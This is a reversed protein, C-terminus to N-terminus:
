NPRAPRPQVPPAALILSSGKWDSDKLVPTQSQGFQKISDAEVGSKTYEFARKLDPYKRLGAILNHTFIGNQYESSDYSVQNASSSAILLQGSGQMVMEVNMKPMIFVSKSGTEAAGAHCADLVILVRDTNLRGKITSALDQMEIGTAFLNAPNTDYALVFNKHAADQDASSGHGAFFVLVLDGPKVNKPLWTSGLETMIGERTAHENILLKVHDAAFHEEKVLFHAFDAADKDPFRLNITPDKFKSIGVVLAWKDMIPTKQLDGTTTQPPTSLLTSLSTSTPTATSTSTSTSTATSIATSTSDPLTTTSSPTSRNLDPTLNPTPYSATKSQSDIDNHALVLDVTFPKSIDSSVITVPSKAKLQSKSTHQLDLPVYIQYHKAMVTQQGKPRIIVQRSYQSLDPGLADKSLTLQLTELGPHEDFELSGNKPLLYEVGKRVHNNGAELENPFLIESHGTSGSALNISMYGDVNPRVKFRIQDGTQFPYRSDVTSKSGNRTLEISYELGYSRVTTARLQRYYFDKPGGAPTTAMAANITKPTKPSLTNCPTGACAFPFEGCGAFAIGTASLWVLLNRRM